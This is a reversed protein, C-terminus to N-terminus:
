SRNGARAASITASFGSTMRTCLAGAVRAAICAVRVMGITITPVPSGTAYPM